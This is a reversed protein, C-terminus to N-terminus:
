RWIQLTPQQAANRSGIYITGQHTQVDLITATQAVGVWLPTLQPLNDLLAAALAREGNRKRYTVVISQHGDDLFEVGEVSIGDRHFTRVVQPNFRDAIAIVHLGDLGNGTILYDQEDTIILDYSASQNEVANGLSYRGIHVPNGTDFVDYINLQVPEIGSVRRGCDLQYIYLDQTLRLAGGDRNPDLSSGVWGLLGLTVDYIRLGGCCASADHESEYLFTSDETDEVWMGKFHYNSSVTSVVAPNCPDRVDIMNIGGGRHATYLFGGHYRPDNWQDGLPPDISSCVFPQTPDTVDVVYQVAGAHRSAFAYTGGGISAVEVGRCSDPSTSLIVEAQRTPVQAEGPAAAVALTVVFAALWIFRDPRRHPVVLSRFTM